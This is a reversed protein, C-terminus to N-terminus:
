YTTRMSHCGILLSQSSSLSTIEQRRAYAKIIIRQHSEYSSTDGKKILNKFRNDWSIKLINKTKFFFEFKKLVRQHEETKRQSQILGHVQHQSTTKPLMYRSSYPVTLFLFPPLTLPLPHATQWWGPVLTSLCECWSCWFPSKWTFLSPSENHSCSPALLTNAVTVAPAPGPLYVCPM